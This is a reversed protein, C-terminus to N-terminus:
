RGPGCLRGTITETFSGTTLNEQGVLTVQGSIRRLLGTGALSTAITRFDGTTIDLSGTAQATLTGALSSFVIPGAFSAVTGAVGTTTFSANTRGVAVGDVSVTAETAGGGLDQGAGLALIPVCGVIAGPPVNAAAGTEPLACSVALAALLSCRGILLM